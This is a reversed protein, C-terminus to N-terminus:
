RVAESAAAGRRKPVHGTCRHCVFGAKPAYRAQRFDVEEGCLACYVTFRESEREHKEAKM